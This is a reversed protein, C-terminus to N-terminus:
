PTVVSFNASPRELLSFFSLLTLRSGDVELEDSFITERLGAQGTALRLLLARTLHLTADAAPDPARRKSHLVSNELTLTYSEGLDTFVLNVTMTKGDAKPGNVRTAMSELFREMPTSMLLDMAAALDIGAGVTGHRLEQAGTLYVDRWPGSEAQYGLQDYTAALLERAESDDPRAFVVHNLITATWRYEGRAFSARANELVADRGGMLEVYRPAAEAPPLPDLNAPNGDYWGFYRQYVAKANHRLTGYYGRVSFTKALSEPLVLQDAIEQPTEGSNALRMTQDHIYKYVDRQKKLYDVVRENGWIPWHHSAFVIEAEGFRDIADDIYGSWKLADRVKAGRLTYLNHMTHSVIEAGDYAKADPLYFALEAPAESDPVYQFVFRVGDIEMEQPTHDVLETPMAFGITGRAPQVGLGTDVHGRPSRPVDTGYMFMARRGMAIGAIVNESTAEEVFNRPAIIRLAKRAAEDEPLVAAIGGFHDVHSHTFIVATIPADGLHKRALALAAAATEKATLTDVVIWGTRGRIFTMNSIDYGRVQYIGDTVQFLGHNGNLRAQRWLSPNVSSPAAGEIFGYAATDWIPTGGPGPVLLPDAAVLGRKADEFDQPDDLPLSRAVEAQAEETVRSPATAGREDAGTASPEKPGGSGSCAALLAFGGLTALTLSRSIM